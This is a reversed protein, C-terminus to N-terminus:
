KPPIKYVDRTIFIGKGQSSSAPKIIWNIGPTRVMESQLQNMENPLIFTLPLWKFHKQGHLEMLKALHKYMCDKRCIETSKPFHNVKQYRHLSQYLQSKINTCSWTVQWDLNRDVAERFGNDELTYRILPVQTENNFKFYYGRDQPKYPRISMPDIYPRFALYKKYASSQVGQPAQTAKEIAMDIKGPTQEMEAVLEEIKEEEKRKKVKDSLNQKTEDVQQKM